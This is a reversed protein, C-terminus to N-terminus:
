AAGERRWKGSIWWGLGVVFGLVSFWDGFRAYLTVEGEVPVHVTAYLWGRTHVGGTEDTLIRREGSETDVVTGNASIVATVGTNACRVTPRRLEISRFKANAFHQVAAESEKFWGDNTINVLLQGGNKIYKRLLRPVTDEFCISPIVALEGTKSRAHPVKLPETGEGASFSGGYGTGASKEWLWVLFPLYKRYPITEGFLVLHHKQYTRFDTEGAPLAVLSNYHRGDPKASYFGDNNVAEIENLGMILTFAGADKIVELTNRTLPGLGQGGNEAVYLPEKLASEPWVIWDPVDLAVKGESGKELEVRMREANREELEALAKLTDEQYGLHVEEASWFVHAAEQPINLQVMLVRLPITEGARAGHLKWIGYVFCLSLVVMTVGFDWHPRLRGRRVEKHLGRGVQVVVGMVFVPLFSLGTAGVLDASQALVPTDHFAVGLGNWGFGTLFWGRVWELGCWWFANLTAFRLVRRSEAMSKSRKGKKEAMRARVKAEIGSEEGDEKDTKPERWPNGVGAAFMGWLAFYLALFLAVAILGVVGVEAIWRLNLFWFVVGALYGIRFGYWGRKREGGGSWLAVLLPIMGLWVMATVNFPAFCLALMLGSGMALGACPWFRTMLGM